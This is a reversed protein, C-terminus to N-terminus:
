VYVCSSAIYTAKCVVYACVVILSVSAYMHFDHSSGMRYICPVTERNFGQEEIM